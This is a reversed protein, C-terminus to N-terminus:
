NRESENLKELLKEEMKQTVHTYIKLTTSPNAHGVRTMISKIPLGLESLKSIHTHRFIHTSLSKNLKGKEKLSESVVGLMHNVTTLSLPLGYIDCYIFGREDYNDSLAQNYANEKQWKDIIEISRNSLSITRNSTENKPSSLQINKSNGRHLITEDIRLQNRDIDDNKLAALEGYRLGTLTMLEMGEAYRFRRKPIGKMTRIEELILDIENQELYKETNSENQQSKKKPLSVEKMVNKDVAGIREGYKFINSLLTRLTNTYNRSYGQAYYFDDLKSQIYQASMNRVLANKDILKIVVLYTREAVYYTQIKVTNKYVPLWKQYLEEFTMDIQMRRVIKEDVKKDLMSQAQKKAQNSKSNLTVSVYKYKETLPDIYRENYKYKGNPLKEMWM